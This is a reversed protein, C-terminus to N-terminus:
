AGTPLGETDVMGFTGRPESRENWRNFRAITLGAVLPISTLLVIPIVSQVFPHEPRMVFSVPGYDSFGDSVSGWQMWRENAFALFCFIQCVFSSLLALTTVTLTHGWMPLWRRLAALLVLYLVVSVVEFSPWRSTIAFLSPGFLIVLLSWTVQVLAENISRARASIAIGIWGMLVAGLILFAIPALRSEFCAAIISGILYVSALYKWRGLVFAIVSWGALWGLLMMEKSGFVVEDLTRVRAPQGHSPSLFFHEPALFWVVVKETVGMLIPLTLLPGLHELVAGLTGTAIEFRTLPTDMMSELMGSRRDLQVGLAGLYIAALLLVGVTFNLSVDLYFTYNWHNFSISGSRQECASYIAIGWAVLCVVVQAWWFTGDADWIRSRRARIWVPNHIPVLGLFRGVPTLRWRSRRAKREVIGGMARRRHLLYISWGFLGFSIAAVPLPALWFELFNNRGESASGLHATPLMMVWLSVAGGNGFIFAIMFHLLGTVMLTLVLASLVTGRIASTFVSISGVFLMMFALSYYVRALRGYDIGGFLGVLALIPIPLLLFLLIPILRGVTKGLVISTTSLPSASLLAITTAEQEGAFVPCLYIPVLLLVVFLQITFVDSVFEEALFAYSQMAFQAPVEGRFALHRWAATLIQFALLGSVFLRLLLHRTRYVELRMERVALPGLFYEVFDM